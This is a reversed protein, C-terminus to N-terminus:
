KGFTEDVVYTEITTLGSGYIRREGKHNVSKNLQITHPRIFKGKEDIQDCILMPCGVKSYEFKKVRYYRPHKSFDIGDSVISNTKLVTGNLLGYLELKSLYPKMNSHRIADKM